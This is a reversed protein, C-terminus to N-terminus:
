VQVILPARTAMFTTTAIDLCPSQGGPTMGQLAHYASATYVVADYFNGRPSM